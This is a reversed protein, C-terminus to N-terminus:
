SSRGNHPCQFVGCYKQCLFNKKAPFSEHKLSTEWDNVLAQVPEFRELISDRTFSDNDIKREQLYVFSTRVQALAPDLKFAAHANIIAQQPKPGRHKGTKWDVVLAVGNSFRVYVDAAVRLYANNWDKAHTQTGERTLVMSKEYEAKGRACIAGVKDVPRQYQLMSSPLPTGKGLYNEIAKHVQDGWIAAENKEFPVLKAVKEAWYKLPCLDYVELASHSWGFNKGAPVATVINM